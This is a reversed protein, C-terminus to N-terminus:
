TYKRLRIWVNKNIVTARRITKFKLTIHCFVRAVALPRQNIVPQNIFRELIMQENRQSM